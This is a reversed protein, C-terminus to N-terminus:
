GGFMTADADGTTVREGRQNDIWLEIRQREGTRAGLVGHCTLTEGPRVMAQFRVRLRALQGGPATATLWDTVLQGLFAMSLMGHAITGDLGVARAVVPNVHIPNHDASVDAYANIQEQTVHKTLPPIARGEPETPRAKAAAGASPTEASPTEANPTAGAAVLPADRVIVTAKGTVVREGEATDCLQEITM